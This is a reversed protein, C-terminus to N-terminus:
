NTRQQRQQAYTGYAGLGAVQQQWQQEAYYQAAAEQDSIVRAYENLGQAARFAVVSLASLGLGFHIAFGGVVLLAASSLTVAWSAYAAAYYRNSFKYVIDTDM